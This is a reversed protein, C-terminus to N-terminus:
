EKLLEDLEKMVDVSSNVEHNEKLFKEVEILDKAASDKPKAEGEEKEVKKTEAGDKDASRRSRKRKSSREEMTSSDSRRKTSKRSSPSKRRKRSKSEPSRSRTTSRSRARLDDTRDTTTVGDREKKPATKLSMNDATAFQKDRMAAVRDALSMEEGEDKAQHDDPSGERGGPSSMRTVIRRHEETDDLVEIAGDNHERLAKSKKRKEKKEKKEKKDKKKEKKDRKKDKKKDKKVISLEKMEGKRFEESYRRDELDLVDGEDGRRGGGNGTAGDLRKRLDLTKIASARLEEEESDSYEFVEVNEEEDDDDRKQGRAVADYGLRDKISPKTGLRSKASSRPTASTATKMTSVDADTKAQLLASLEHMKNKNVIITKNTPSTMEASNAAPNATPM